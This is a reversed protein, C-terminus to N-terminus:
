PHVRGCLKCRLGRPSDAQCRGDRHALMRAESASSEPMRRQARGYDAQVVEAAEGDAASLLFREPETSATEVLGGSTVARGLPRGTPARPPLPRNQEAAVAKEGSNVRRSGADLCLRVWKSFTVGQRRADAKWRIM